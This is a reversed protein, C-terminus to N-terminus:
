KVEFELKRNVVSPVPLKEADRLAYYISSVAQNYWNQPTKMSCKQVFRTIDYWPNGNARAWVVRAYKLGMSPHHEVWPLWELVVVMADSIQQPTPRLYIERDEDPYLPVYDPWNCFKNRVGDKPMNRVTTAAQWLTTDVDRLGLSRRFRNLTRPKPKNM